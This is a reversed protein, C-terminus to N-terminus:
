VTTLANINLAELSAYVVDKETTTDYSADLVIADKSVEAPGKVLCLVKTDTTAAVSYDDVVLAAVVASGDTATQVAIKYKVTGTVAITFSDGVVFDVAGDALTFSLGGGTFAVGVRGMGVVDGQPDVVQFDGANVAATTITLKYTGTQATGSVTIAGVTGNGTNTGATAVGAGGALTKGLATGVEYTKAVAENVTVEKRCFGTEPWLEHKVLNSYRNKDTAIVTM